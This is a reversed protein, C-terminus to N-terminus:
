YWSVRGERREKREGRRKSGPSAQSRRGGVLGEFILIVVDDVVVFHVRQTDADQLLHHHRHLSYPCLERGRHHQVPNKHLLFMVSPMNDTQFSFGHRKTAKFESWNKKM